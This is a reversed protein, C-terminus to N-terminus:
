TSDKASGGREGKARSAGHLFRWGGGLPQIININDLVLTAHSVAGSGTHFGCAMFCDTVSGKRIKEDNMADQAVVDM